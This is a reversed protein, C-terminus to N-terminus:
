RKGRDGLVGWGLGSAAVIERPVAAPEIEQLRHLVILPGVVPILWATVLRHAKQARGLIRSRLVAICAGLSLTALSLALVGSVIWAWTM